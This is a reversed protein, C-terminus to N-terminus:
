QQFDEYKSCALKIFKVPDGQFEYGVIEYVIGDSRLKYNSKINGLAPHLRVVFIRDVNLDSLGAEIQQQNFVSQPLINGMRRDIGARTTLIVAEEPITSGDELKIPQVMYITVLHNLRGPDYDLKNEYTKKM